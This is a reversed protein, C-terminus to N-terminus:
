PGDVEIYARDGEIRYASRAKESIGPLAHTWGELETLVQTAFVGTLVQPKMDTHRLVERGVVLPEGNNVYLPVIEVAALKGGRFLLRPLMSYLKAGTKHHRKTKSAFSFNGLSHFIVGKKYKEVGQIVHPHHGLLVDAGADMFRRYLETKAKDPVHKYETGQHVSVVVVDGDRKHRKVAEIADAGPTPVLPNNAYGFAFFVVKTRKGPVTFVLPKYVEKRTRAAGIWFLPGRAKDRGELLDLTDFIGQDGTDGMHNNALSFLNFGGDLVYDLRGPPTAIQWEKRLKFTADTFPTELNVFALDADKAYKSVEDFMAAGQRDVFRDLWGRPYAVDGGAVLVFENASRKKRKPIKPKDAAFAASTSLSFVAILAFVLRRM